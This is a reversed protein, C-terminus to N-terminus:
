TAQIGFQYLIQNFIFLVELFLIFCKMTISSKMIIIRIINEDM